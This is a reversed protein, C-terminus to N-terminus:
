FIPLHCLSSSSASVFKISRQRALERDFVFYTRIYKKRNQKQFRLKYRVPLAKLKNCWCSDLFGNLCFPEFLMSILLTNTHTRAFTRDWTHTRYNLHSLPAVAEQFQAHSTRAHSTNIPHPHSGVQFDFFQFFHLKVLHNIINTGLFWRVLEM